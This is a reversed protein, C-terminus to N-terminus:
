HWAYIAIAAYFYSIGREQHRRTQLVARGGGSCPSAGTLIVERQTQPLVQGEGCPGVDDRRAALWVSLM